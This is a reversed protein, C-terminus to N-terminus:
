VAGVARRLAEEVEDAGGRHQDVSSRLFHNGSGSGFEVPIAHPAGFGIAGVVSTGGLGSKQVHAPETFGSDRLEGTRVPANRQATRLIKSTARNVGGVLEEGLADNVKDIQALLQKENTMRIGVM